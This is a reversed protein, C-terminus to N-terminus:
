HLIRQSLLDIDCWRPFFPERHCGGVEQSGTEISEVRVHELKETGLSNGTMEKERSLYFWGHEGVCDSVSAFSYVSLLFKIWQSLSYCTTFKTHFEILLQILFLSLSPRSLVQILICLVSCIFQVTM